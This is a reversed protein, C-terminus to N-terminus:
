HLLLPETLSLVKRNDSLALNIISKANKLDRKKHFNCVPRALLLKQNYYHQLLYSFADIAAEPTKFSPVNSESLLEWAPKVQSGGLWCALLPKDTKKACSIIEKVAQTPDSMVVPVLIVLIGEINPDNICAAVVQKYREPTAEGLIDVPNAHSWFKPLISDLYKYTDISM